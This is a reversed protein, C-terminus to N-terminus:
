HSSTPCMMYHGNLKEDSSKQQYTVVIDGFDEDVVRVWDEDGM